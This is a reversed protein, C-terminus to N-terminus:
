DTTTKILYLKKTGTSKAVLKATEAPLGQATLFTINREQIELKEATTLAIRGQPLFEDSKDIFAQFRGKIAALRETFDGVGAGADACAQKIGYVVVYQEIDTLTSWSSWHVALDVKIGDLELVGDQFKWSVRKGKEKEPLDKALIKVMEKFPTESEKKFEKFEKSETIDM